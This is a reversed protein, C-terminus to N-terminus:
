DEKHQQFEETETERHAKKLATSHTSATSKNRRLRPILYIALIVFLIWMGIRTLEPGNLGIGYNWM